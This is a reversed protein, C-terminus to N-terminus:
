GFFHIIVESKIFCFETKESIRNYFCGQVHGCVFYDYAELSKYAKMSEETFVSPSDILYETADRWTINPLNKIDDSWDSLALPNPLKEGSSLTLKSLYHQKDKTELAICYDSLSEHAM